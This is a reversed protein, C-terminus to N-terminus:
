SNFLFNFNQDYFKQGKMLMVIQALETTVPFLYGESLTSGENQESHIVKDEDFYIKEPISSAYITTGTEHQVSEFQYNRGNTVAENLANYQEISTCLIHNM